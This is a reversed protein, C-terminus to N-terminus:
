SIIIPYMENMNWKCLTCPIGISNLVYVLPQGIGHMGPHWITVTIFKLLEGELHVWFCNSRSKINSWSEWTKRKIERQSESFFFFSFGIFCWFSKYCSSNLAHKLVKEILVLNLSKKLVKEILVLNLTKLKWNSCFCFVAFSFQTGICTPDFYCYCGFILLM